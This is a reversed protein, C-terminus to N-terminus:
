CRQSSMKWLLIYLSPHAVWVLKQQISLLLLEWCICFLWQTKAVMTVESYRSRATYVYLAQYSIWLLTWSNLCTRIMADEFSRTFHALSDAQLKEPSSLLASFLQTSKIQETNSSGGRISIVSAGVASKKSISSRSSYGCCFNRSRVFAISELRVFMSVAFLVHGLYRGSVMNMSQM